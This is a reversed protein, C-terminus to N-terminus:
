KKNGIAFDVLAEAHIELTNFLPIETHEQQILLPIETCGLIIGGAGQDTLRQMIQLFSDRSKQHFDAFFLEKFIVENILKREEEEPVITQFGFSSLVEQYFHGEMTKRTGLLGVKNIKRAVIKEATASAIHLIPCDVSASLRDYYVHATNACIALVDAGSGSLHVAAEHMMGFIADENKEASYREIDGYNLSYLICRAFEQGGLKRNVGENILRYYEASSIWGTGGILGITKM